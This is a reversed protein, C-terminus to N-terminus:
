ESDTEGEEDEILEEEMEKMSWALGLLYRDSVPEANILRALTGGCIESLRNNGEMSLSAYAGQYTLLRQFGISQIYQMASVSAPHPEAEKLTSPDTQEETTPEEM